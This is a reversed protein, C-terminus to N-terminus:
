ALLHPALMRSHALGPRRAQVEHGASEASRM